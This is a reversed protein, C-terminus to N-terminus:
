LIKFVRVGGENGYIFKFLGSDGISKVKANVAEVGFARVEKRGLILYAFNQQKLRKHLTPIDLDMADSFATQYEPRWYDARMDHGLVLFNDKFTFVKTNPPLNYRLWVYGILERYSGWSVGWPWVATNIRYKMVGSTLAVWPILIVVIAVKVVPQKLLTLLGWIAEMALISVPIAFLLWFRFAFLGIPFHFTMSNMGLFTFIGWGLTTFLYVKEEEEGKKVRYFSYLIGMWVLICLVPGVGVPSNILNNKEVGFYDGFTYSRTATGKTPSFLRGLLGGTEITNGTAENDIRVLLKSTGSHMQNIIPLWWLLSIIGASFMIVILNKSFKKYILADALFFIMAFGLFKITQTPQILLMGAIVISSPLILNRDKRAKHLLYLAPFFLTILLAHAWIFHSLYCPALFLFITALVAKTKNATFEKALFYFFLFGLSIILGNFFKITWYLSPNTQHLTAFILDYGPPYPNLYHFQGPDVNFNREVAIYKISSAHGWSDDDELWLYNFPGHCYVWINFIFILFLTVAPISPKEFSIIRTRYKIFDYVPGFLALFLFIRWDIPIHFINLLVAVVPWVGLGIGVRMINTELNHPM